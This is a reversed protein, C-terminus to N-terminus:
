TKAPSRGRRRLVTWCVAAGVAVAGLVPLGWPRILVGMGAYLVWGFAVAVPNGPSSIAVLATLLAFCVAVAVGTGAVVLTAIIVDTGVDAVTKRDM